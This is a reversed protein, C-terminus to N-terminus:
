MGNQQQLHQFVNFSPPSPLQVNDAEYNQSNGHGRGRGRGRGRGHGRARGRSSDQSEIGDEIQNDQVDYNEDEDSENQDYNEPTNRLLEVIYMSDDNQEDSVSTEM